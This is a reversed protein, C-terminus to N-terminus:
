IKILNVVKIKNMFTQQENNESCDPEILLRLDDNTMTENQQLFQAIKDLHERHDILIQKTLTYCENLLTAIFKNANSDNEKSMKAFGLAEIRCSNLILEIIQDIKKMDDHCGNSVVNFVIEESARGAFLVLIHAILEHITSLNKDVRENQTFGLASRGRPVVSVKVPQTISDILYGILAHGAEHFCVRKKEEVSMRREPKEMGVIIEDISKLINAKTVGDTEEISQKDNYKCLFNYVAQNIINKIDAGTLGATMKALETLSDDLQEKLENSMKVKNLYLKLLDHRESINPSDFIIEKDFRGSRNLAPDLMDPMNTAAIVLINDSPTFGDMEVLLSNLTSNHESTNIGASRKKGIADIEDIFIICPASKRALAFLDKVKKSGMGVFMEIFDSGCVSIFNANSETAFASALLTKGTGPPGTFLLGRPITYGAKIYVDRSKIFNTYETLEKKTEVMGIVNSFNLSNPSKKVLSFYNSQLNTLSSGINIFSKNESSSGIGGIGGIGNSSSSNTNSNSGIINNLGLIGIIFNILFYCSAITALTSLMNFPKKHYVLPHFEDKGKNYLSSIQEDLLKNNSFQMYHYDHKYFSQTIIAFYDNNKNIQTENVRFYVESSSPYIDIQSFYYKNNKVMSEIHQFPTQTEYKQFWLCYGMLALICIKSLISQM